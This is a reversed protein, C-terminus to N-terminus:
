PDPAIGVPHLIAGSAIVRIGRVYFKVMGCFFTLLRKFQYSQCTLITTSEYYYYQPIYHPYIFKYCHFIPRVKIFRLTFHDFVTM